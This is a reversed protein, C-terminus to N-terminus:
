GEQFLGLWVVEGRLKELEWTVGDTDVEVFDPAPDGVGNGGVTVALQPEDPDNSAIDLTANDPGLDTPGYTVRVDVAEGAPIIASGNNTTPPFSNDPEVSMENTGNIYGVIMHVHAKYDM